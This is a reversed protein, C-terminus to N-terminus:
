CAIFAPLVLFTGDKLREDVPALCTVKVAHAGISSPRHSFSVIDLLKIELKNSLLFISCLRHRLHVVTQFCKVHTECWEM